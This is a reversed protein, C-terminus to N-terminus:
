KNEWVTVPKKESYWYKFIMTLLVTANQNIKEILAM